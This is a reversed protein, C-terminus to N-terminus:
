MARKLIQAITSPHWRTGRCPIGAEELHRGIKRCGNGETRLQKVREIVAQEDPCDVLRADNDPDVKKGFPVRDKRGMRRGKSQYQRMAMSTTDAIQERVMQAFVGLINLFFRGMYHRTSFSETISALDAGAKTLRKVLHDLDSIRRTLRDVLWVVIVAKEACALDIAAQLGPRNDARSGSLDEDKFEGIIDYEHAKCYSRARELQKDCSDSEHGPRPSWRTYITAKTM